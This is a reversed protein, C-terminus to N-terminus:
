EEADEEDDEEDDESNKNRMSNIGKAAAKAGKSAAKAAAKAGKSAARVASKGIRGAKFKMNQFTSCSKAIKDAMKRAINNKPDDPMLLGVLKRIDKISENEFFNL